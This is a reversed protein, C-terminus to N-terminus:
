RIRRQPEWEPFPGIYIVDVKRIRPKKKENKKWNFKINKNRNLKEPTKKIIYTTMTILLMKQQKLPEFNNAESRPITKFTSNNTGM